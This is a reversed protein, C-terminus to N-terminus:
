QCKNEGGRFVFTPLSLYKSGSMVAGEVFLGRPLESTFIAVEVGLVNLNSM